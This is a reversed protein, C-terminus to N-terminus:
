MQQWFEFDANSEINFVNEVTANNLDCHKKKYSYNISTCNVMNLCNMLCHLVSEIAISYLVGSKIKM